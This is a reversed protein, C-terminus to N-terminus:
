PSLKTAQPRPSEGLETTFLQCTEPNRMTFAVYADPARDRQCASLKQLVRVLALTVEPCYLM